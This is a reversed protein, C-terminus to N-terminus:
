WCQKATGSQKARALVDGTAPVASDGALVDLEVTLTRGALSFASGAAPREVGDVLTAWGSADANPLAIASASTRHVLRDGRVAWGECSWGNTGTAVVARVVDGDVRVDSANRISSQLSSMILQARGTTADRDRTQAEAGLSSAFLTAVVSMLLATLAAYVILEVLSLGAEDTRLSNM